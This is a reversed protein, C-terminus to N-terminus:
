QAYRKIYFKELKSIIKKINYDSNLLKEIEEKKQNRKLDNKLKLILEIWEDIKSNLNLVMFRKIELNAEKPITNSVLVDLGNSQAEILVIGLGEYLSPFLMMDMGNLLENVNKQIGLIIINKLNYKKIRKEIEEKLEGDGILYLKINKDIRALKRMIEIMFFHNKQESFRAVNIIAFNGKKIGLNERVKERTERNFLFKEINIGNNLVKFEKNGFLWKGAEVSCAFRETAYKTILYKSYKKYMSVLGIKKLSNDNINHSHSIRVKIGSKKAEKLIFGSVMNYHSHIIKYNNSKLIKKLNKFYSFHGSTVIPPIKYIKGGLQKIEKEFIDEKKRDNIVFDFQIKSRDINRYINMLFNEIGGMDMTATVHLIRIPEQM